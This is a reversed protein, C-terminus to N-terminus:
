RFTRLFVSTNKTTLHYLSIYMNQQILYHFKDDVVEFKTGHSYDNDSHRLLTDNELSLYTQVGYCLNTILIIIFLIKKNM